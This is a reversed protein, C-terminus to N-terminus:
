DIVRQAESANLGHFATLFTVADGRLGCAASRCRWLTTRANMGASPNSDGHAHNNSPCSFTIEDGSKSIHRIGLKDAQSRLFDEADVYSLDRRQMAHRM